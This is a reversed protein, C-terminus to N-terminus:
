KLSYYILMDLNIQYDYVDIFYGGKLPLSVQFDSFLVFLCFHFYISYFPLFGHMKAYHKALIHSCILTDFNYFLTSLNSFVFVPCCQFICCAFPFTIPIYKSIKHMFLNSESSSSPTFLLLLWDSVSDRKSHSPAPVGRPTQQIRTWATRTACGRQLLFIQSVTNSKLLLYLAM